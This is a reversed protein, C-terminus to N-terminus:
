PFIHRKHSGSYSGSTSPDSLVDKGKNPRYSTNRLVCSSSEDRYGWVRSFVHWLWHWSISSSLQEVLAWGIQLLSYCITHSTRLPPIRPRIHLPLSGNLFTNTGSIDHSLLCSTSHTCCLMVLCFRTAHDTSFGLAEMMDGLTCRTSSPAALCAVLFFRAAWIIIESSFLGLASQSTLHDLELHLFRLRIQSLM